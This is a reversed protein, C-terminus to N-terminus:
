VMKVSCSVLQLLITAADTCASCSEQAGRDPATCSWYRVTLILKSYLLTIGLIEPSLKLHVSHRTSHHIFIQTESGSQESEM